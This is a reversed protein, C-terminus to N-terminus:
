RLWQLALQFVCVPNTWTREQILRLRQFQISLPYTMLSLGVALVLMSPGVWTDGDVPEFFKSTYESNLIWTLFFLSWPVGFFGTIWWIHKRFPIPTEERPSEDSLRSKSFLLMFLPIVSFVPIMLVFIIWPPLGCDRARPAAIFPLFYGITILEVILPFGNQSNLIFWYTVILYGVLRIIFSIRGLKRPLLASKAFIM